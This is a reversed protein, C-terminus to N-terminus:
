PAYRVELGNTAVIGSAVTPDAAAAQWFLTQGGLFVPITAALTFSGEGAGGLGPALTLPLSALWSTAYLTFGLGGFDPVVAPAAGAVILAAAGGFGDRMRLTAQAGVRAPGGQGLVLGFGGAGPPNQGYQRIAGAVPGQARLARVFGARGLLDRDGDGDCDALALPGSEGITPVDFFRPLEFALNAGTSRLVEVAGRGTFGTRAALLDPWADGDIDAALMPRYVTSTDAWLGPLSLATFGAPGDNRLIRGGAGFMVDDLAIDPDGDLDLDSVAPRALPFNSAPYTLTTGTALPQIAFSAGFNRLVAVLPDSQGAATVAVLDLDGDGDLDIVVEPRWGLWQVVPAFFGGGDNVWLADRAAIDPDGDGDADFPLGLIPFGSSTSPGRDVVTGNGLDELRRPQVPGGGPPVADMLWEVRGDGDLDGAAGLSNPGGAAWTGGGPAAPWAFPRATFAGSSDNVAAVTAGYPDFGVADFDGDDELDIARLAPHIATPVGGPPFTGAPFAGRPGALTGDGWAVSSGIAIDPFGDGDVDGFGMWPPRLGFGIGLTAAPQWAATGTGRFLSVFGLWYSTSLTWSIALDPPGAGDLDGIVLPGRGPTVTPVVNPIPFVSAPAPAPGAAGLLIPALAFLGSAATWALLDERADADLDGRALRDPPPALAPLGVGGPAGFGTGLSPLVVLGAGGPLLFAADSRFDGNVDVAAPAILPPANAAATGLPFAPGPALLGGAQGRFWQVSWPGVAGTLWPGLLLLLDKVGDGDIDGLDGGKPEEALPTVVPSGFSGGGLGPRVEIRYPGGPYRMELVVDEVADGTVDGYWASSPEVIGTVTYTLVPVLRGTGDNRTVGLIIGPFVGGFHVGDLDGDGDLDDLAILPIPYDVLTQPADFWRQGPLAGLVLTSVIAADRMAQLM